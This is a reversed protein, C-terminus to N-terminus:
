NLRSNSAFFCDTPVVANKCFFSLGYGSKKSSQNKPYVKVPTKVLQPWILFQGM